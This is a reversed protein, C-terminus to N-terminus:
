LFIINRRNLVKKVQNRVKKNSICCTCIKSVQNNKVSILKDVYNLQLPICTQIDSGISRAISASHPCAYVKGCYYFLEPNLCEVPLSNPVSFKPNVYFEQRDIAKIKDPYKKQLNNVQKLNNDYISIRLIDIFSIIEDTITHFKMANSFISIKNCIKSERLMKLGAVLHKWFLPEGGSLIFDIIYNSEESVNILANLDKLSMEYFPDFSMLHGMICEKCRRQCISTVYLTLEM